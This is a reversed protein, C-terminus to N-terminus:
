SGLTASGLPVVMQAQGQLNNDGRVAVFYLNTLATGPTGILEFYESSTDSGPLDAVVENILVDQDLVTLTATVPTGLAAGGTPNSLALNITEHGELATDGLVTVTFTK